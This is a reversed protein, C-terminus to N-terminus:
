LTKKSAIATLKNKSAKYKEIIFTRFSIAALIIVGGTISLISPVEGYGFFVWVPNLVPEVMAILSGEVAMVRKIGYSFIAYAIGIQVIGLYSLKAFTAPSVSNINFMFPASVVCIIINGYFISSSQNEPKNKKMGLMFAAFAIGSLLAVLNGALHGPSLEGVFFLIMGIFCMTITIVNIREFKTKYIFPELLFVYIPGTYQLFIANAATTMKTAMVFFILVGSYFFSNMISIRDFGFAKKKFLIAFVIAAFFSRFFCIQIAELPILKIFMGGTSWIVGSIFIAILGKQHESRTTM